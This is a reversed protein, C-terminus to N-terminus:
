DLGPMQRGPVHVLPVDTVHNWGVKGPMSLVVEEAPSPAPGVGQPEGAPGVVAGDPGAGARALRETGGALPFPDAVVSVKPGVEEPEDFGAPRRDDEPLLDCRCLNDSSLKLSSENDRNAPAVVGSGVPESFAESM